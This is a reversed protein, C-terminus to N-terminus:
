FSTTSWNNFYKDSAKQEEDVIQFHSLLVTSAMCQSSFKVKAHFPSYTM